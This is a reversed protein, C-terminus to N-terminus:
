TKESHEHGSLITDLTPWSESKYELAKKALHRVEDENYEMPFHEDYIEKHLPQLIAILMVFATMIDNLTIDAKRWVDKTALVANSDIHFHTKDRIHKLKDNTSLDELHEIRKKNALNADIEIKKLKYIYWFTSSHKHKDLIKMLHALACNYLASHAIEFFSSEPFPHQISNIAFLSRWEFWGDRTENLLRNLVRKYKDEEKKDM